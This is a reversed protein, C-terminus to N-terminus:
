LGIPSCFVVSTVLSQYAIQSQDRSGASRAGCESGGRLGGLRRVLIWAIRGQAQDLMRHPREITRELDAGQLDAVGRKELPSRLVIRLRALVDEVLPHRRGGLQAAPDLLQTLADLLGAAGLPALG